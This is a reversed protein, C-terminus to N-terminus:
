WRAKTPVPFSLLQRALPFELASMFIYALSGAVLPNRTDRTGPRWRSGNHGQALCHAGPASSQPQGQAAGLRDHTQTNLKTIVLMLCTTM